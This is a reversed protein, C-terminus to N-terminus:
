SFHSEGESSELSNDLSNNIVRKQKEKNSRKVQETEEIIDLLGSDSNRRLRPPPSSSDYDPTPERLDRGPVQPLKRRGDINDGHSQSRKDGGSRDRSRSDSQARKSSQRPLSHSPVDPLVRRQNTLRELSHNTQDGGSRSRPELTKYKQQLSHQGPQARHQRRDLSRYEPVIPDFVVNDEGDSSTDLYEAAVRRSMVPRREGREEPPPPPRFRPPPGSVPAGGPGSKMYFRGTDAVGMSQSRVPANRKANHGASVPAPAPRHGGPGPHGPHASRHPPPPIQAIIM